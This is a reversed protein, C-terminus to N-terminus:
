LSLGARIFYYEAALLIIIGCVYKIRLMWRGSKPLRSLVGSFTGVLILSAGLGYSFFFLLSVGHAINKESAVYLLLTGLVPAVCPGVALGAVMGFLIVVWPNRIKISNKINVGLIPLPIVDMMVLAFFILVNGMLILAFPSNQAEGFIRGTLSAFVALGCYTIALGLVYLLSLLFGLAKTGRTNIGAIFSATLPLLPYLCPTFSVVVGAGFVIFYDVINGQLSM